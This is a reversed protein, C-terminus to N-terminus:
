REGSRGALSEIRFVRVLFSGPPRLAYTISIRDPIDLSVNDYLEVAHQPFDKMLNYQIDFNATAGILGVVTAVGIIGCCKVTLGSSSGAFRIIRSGYFGQLEAL